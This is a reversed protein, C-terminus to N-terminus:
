MHSVKHGCAQYVTYLATGIAIVNFSGFNKIYISTMDKRKEGSKQVEDLRKSLDQLDEKVSRVNLEARVPDYKCESKQLGEKELTVQKAYQLLSERDMGELHELRNHSEQFPPPPPTLRSVQERPGSLRYCCRTRLRDYRPLQPIVAGSRHPPAGSRHTPAGTASRRLAAAAAARALGWAM